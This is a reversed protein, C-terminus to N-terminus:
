GVNERTDLLEKVLFFFKNAEGAIKEEDEREADTFPIDAEATLRYSTKHMYTRATKLLNLLRKTTMKELKERKLDTFHNM